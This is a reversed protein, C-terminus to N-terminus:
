KLKGIGIQNTRTNTAFYVNKLFAAGLIWASEGESSGSSVSSVCKGTDSDSVSFIMDRSDMTFKYGGKFTFTLSTDTSCPIEYGGQGDSSSGQIANHIADAVSQPAIILSTGTDLTARHKNSGRRRRSGLVSKSGVSVDELVIEWYGNNSQNDFEQLSGSVQSSDIAGFTIQGHNNNSGDAVRGLRYGVVPQDVLNQDAMMEIVTKGGLVSLASGGLGMLGDFPINEGGFEATESTSVGIQMNSITHGAVTMSDTARNVNVSGTGYSIKYQKNSIKLSSSSSEGLKNHSACNSCNTGSVWTDSSGSDVLLKFNNNSSGIQVTTFYGVDNAEISLGLTNDASPDQANTVKNQQAAEKIRNVASNSNSDRVVFKGSSRRSGRQREGLSLTQNHGLISADYSETHVATRGLIDPSQIEPDMARRELWRRRRDMAESLEESSPVNRSQMQALRARGHNLQRQLLMWSNEKESRKEVSGHTLNFQIGTSELAPFASQDSDGRSAFSKTGQPTSHALAQGSGTSVADLWASIAFFAFVLRTISQQM